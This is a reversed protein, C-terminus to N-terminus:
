IVRVVCIGRLTNCIGVVDQNCVIDVEVVALVGVEVEEGRLIKVFASAMLGKVFGRLGSPSM